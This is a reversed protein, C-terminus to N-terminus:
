NGLAVPGWLDLGSDTNLAHIMNDTTIAYIVNKNAALPSYVKKKYDIVMKTTNNVTNVLWLKGDESALFLNSGILVPSSSIPSTSIAINNMVGNNTNFVYIKGDINPAYITNGVIVPNAWFWKGAPAQSKWVLQGNSINVAYFYRDFSGFYAIGDKIVPTNIIAGNTEFHWKEIGNSLNIAYIKKDFSAVLLTDGSIVPTSWIKNGTAFPTNWVATPTQQGSTANIAYVKGDNCGFYLKGDAYVAGGVISAVSGNEPYSWQEIAKASDYAYVKGTYTTVFIMNGAVVPTGYIYQPSSSPSCSLFGGSSTITLEIDRFLKNRNTADLGIVKGNLSAVYLNNGDVAVSSWGQYKTTTGFCGTLTGAIIVLCILTMIIGSKGARRIKVFKGNLYFEM